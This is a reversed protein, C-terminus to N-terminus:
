KLKNSIRSIQSKTLDILFKFQNSINATKDVHKFSAVIQSESKPSTILKYGSGLSWFCSENPTILTIYKSNFFVEVGQQPHKQDFTVTDQKNIKYSIKM